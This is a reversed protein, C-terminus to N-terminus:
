SRAAPPVARHLTPVIVLMAALCAAASLPVYLNYIASSVAVTKLAGLDAFASAGNPLPGGMATTAFFIVGSVFHALYRGVSATIVAAPVVWATATALRNSDALRRWAPAWLGALGGVAAFALPYDLFLQVWHVFFPEIMYDVVGFLAGAVLGAVPGRRLGLVLLPLMELSVSGGAPMQWVRVFHLVAALAITLAVEVLVRTRSATM